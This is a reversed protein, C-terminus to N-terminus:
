KIHISKPELQTFQIFSVRTKVIKQQKVAKLEKAAQREKAAQLAKELKQERNQLQSVKDNLERIKQLSEQHRKQLANLSASQNNIRMLNKGLMKKLKGIESDKTKIKEQLKPVVKSYKTKYLVEFNEARAKAKISAYLRQRLNSIQSNQFNSNKTACNVHTIVVTEIFNGSKDYYITENCLHCNRKKSGGIGM